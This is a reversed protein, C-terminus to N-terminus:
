ACCPYSVAQAALDKVTARTPGFSGLFRRHGMRKALLCLYGELDARVLKEESVCKISDGIQDLCTIALRHSAKIDGNIDALDSQINKYLHDIDLWGFRLSGQYQNHINTQDVIKDCPAEPLEYPLPGAGHRTAYYRTIYTIDLNRLGAEDALDLVNKIGTNSRTVHPFYGRKQDLMLGQAGEFVLAKRTALFKVDAFEINDLFEACDKIFHEMILDSSIRAQWEGPIDTVGMRKLRLPLWSRRIERLVLGLKKKDRLDEAYLRIGNEQRELTEGFGLGCSGHRGNGRFDEAIQNIMMDYPTTVPSRRDVFVRPRVGKEKLLKWEKHFLIPNCVFFKSLFTAAGSFSGSGFHSFVHRKGDHTTVTHGAQAGGNFRVITADKGYPAALYDTILGKGEDGFNAGIVVHAIPM